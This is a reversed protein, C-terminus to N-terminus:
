FLRNWMWRDIQRDTNINLNYLEYRDKIFIGIYILEDKDANIQM